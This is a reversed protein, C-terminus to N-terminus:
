MVQGAIPTDHRLAAPRNVAQECEKVPWHMEPLIRSRGAFLLYPRSEVRQDTTRPAAM